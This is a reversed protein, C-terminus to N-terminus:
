RTQQVQRVRRGLHVAGGAHRIAAIMAEVLVGIGGRVHGTGRWLYDLVCCAFVADAADIDTQLSIQSLSRVWSRVAPVDDIGHRQLMGLLTTNRLSWLQPAQALYATLRPLQRPLAHWVGAATLAPIARDDDLLPWLLDAVERQQACWARVQEQQHAPSHAVLEEVFRSRSAYGHLLLGDAGRHTIVPDLFDVDVRLGHRALARTFFGGAHDATAPSLGSFLTAGAEYRVGHRVFSSACGGGYPLAELCLVKLGREALTLSTSLGGFGAGVVAVDVTETTQTGQARPHVDSVM